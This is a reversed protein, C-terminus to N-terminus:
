ADLVERVKRTLDATTYPKGLFHTTRDLLAHRLIIDDTYDSTYPVKL